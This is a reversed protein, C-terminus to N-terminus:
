AQVGRKTERIQKKLAKEQEMLSKFEGAKENYDAAIKERFSKSLLEVSEQLYCQEANAEAETLGTVFHFSFDEVTGDTNIFLEGFSRSPKCERHIQKVMLTQKNHYIHPEYAFEKGSWITFLGALSLRDDAVKKLRAQLEKLEVKM